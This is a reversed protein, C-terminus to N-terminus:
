EPIEKKHWRGAAARDSDKMDIWQAKDGSITKKWFTARTKLYDMVFDAAAFAGERHSASVAVLVIQDGPLLKGVRHIVTIDMINWRQCAQETIEGLLRETMGPYHELYLADVPGGADNVSNFERVLGTFTVIAGAGRTRLGDYEEQLNFDQEQVRINIMPKDDSSARTPWPTPM